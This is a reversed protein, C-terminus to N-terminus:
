CTRLSLLVADRKSLRFFPVSTLPVPDIMQLPSYEAESIIEYSTLSFQNEFWWAADSLPVGDLKEGRRDTSEEYADDTDRLYGFDGEVEKGERERVTERMVVEGEDM